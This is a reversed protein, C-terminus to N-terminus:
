YDIGNIVVVTRATSLNIKERIGIPVLSTIAPPSSTGVRVAVSALGSLEGANVLQSVIGSYTLTRFDEGPNSRKSQAETVCRSRVIEAMTVPDIPVVPGDGGTEIEVTLWVDVEAVIDFGVPHVGGEIDTVTGHYGADTAWPDGGGGTASFIADWLAQQVEASPPSTFLDVVTNTAKWRIGDSDFPSTAPNHYTRVSRIAEAAESRSVAATIAALPGNGSSFLELVRRVRLAPDTERDAGLKADETPNTFGTLNAISVTPEWADGAQSVLRGTELARVTADLDGAGAFVYPGGYTEWLTGYTDNRFITGDPVDCAGTATLVGRVTSARAAKRITGTLACRQDLLVGTAANPDFSQVARLVLQQYVALLEGQIEAFESSVAEMVSTNLTNGFKAQLRVLLGAVIEERTQLTLGNTTLEFAM